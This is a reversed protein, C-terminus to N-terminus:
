RVNRGKFFIHILKFIFNFNSFLVGFSISTRMAPPVKSQDLKGSDNLRSNNSLIKEENKLSNEVATIEDIQQKIRKFEEIQNIYNRDSNKYNKENSLDRYNQEKLIKKDIIKQGQFNNLENPINSQNDLSNLSNSKRLLNIVSEQNTHDVEM